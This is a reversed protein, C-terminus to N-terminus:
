PKKIERPDPKTCLAWYEYVNKILLQLDDFNGPKVMYSNAGLKYAALIDNPLKSSSLVLTPIVQYEPHDKLWQLVELGGMRPMKLDMIIFRPFPFRVRDSYPGEGKLYDVGDVGDQLVQVPNLINNKQLARKLLIVDNPDDELILITYAGQDM